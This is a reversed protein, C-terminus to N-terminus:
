NNKFNFDIGIQYGKWKTKLIKTSSLFLNFNIYKSKIPTALRFTLDRFGKSLFNSGTRYGLSASLMFQQDKWINIGRGLNINSYLAGKNNLFSTVRTNLSFLKFRLGLMSESFNTDTIYGVRANGLIPGLYYIYGVVLSSKESITYSYSITTSIELDNSKSRTGYSSWFNLSLGSKGFTYTASPQIAPYRAIIDRWIYNTTYRTSLSFNNKTSVQNSISDKNQLNQCIGERSLIILILM